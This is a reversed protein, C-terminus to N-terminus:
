GNQDGSKFWKEQKGKREMHIEIYLKKQKLIDTDTVQRVSTVTTTEITTVTTLTNVVSIYGFRKAIGLATYGNQSISFCSIECYINKVHTFFNMIIINM